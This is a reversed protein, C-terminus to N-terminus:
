NRKKRNYDLTVDSAGLFMSKSESFPGLRYSTEALKDLTDIRSNKSPNAILAPGLTWEPHFQTVGGLKAINILLFDVNKLSFYSM